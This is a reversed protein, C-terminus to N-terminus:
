ILELKTLNVAGQFNRQRIGRFIQSTVGSIEVYGELVTVGPAIDCGITLVGNIRMWEGDRNLTHRSKETYDCLGNYTAVVMPAGNEDMGNTITIIVPTKDWVGFYQPMM